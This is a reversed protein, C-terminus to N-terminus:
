YLLWSISYSFDYVFYQHFCISRFRSIDATLTVTLCYRDIPFPLFLVSLLAISFSLNIIWCSDHMQGEKLLWFPIVQPVAAPAFCPLVFPFWWFASYSFRSPICSFDPLLYRPICLLSLQYSVTFAATLCCCIFPFPSVSPQTIPLWVSASSLFHFRFPFHEFRFNFVLVQPVATPAFWPLIFLFM